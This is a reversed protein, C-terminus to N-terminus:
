YVYKCYDCEPGDEFHQLEKRCKECRPIEPEKKRRLSKYNGWLAITLIGLVTLIITMEVSTTDTQPTM